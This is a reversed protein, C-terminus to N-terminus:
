PQKSPSAPAARRSKTDDRQPAERVLEPVYLMRSCHPCMHVAVSRRVESEVMTPLRVHCGSCVGREMAVFAPARGVELLLRYRDLLRRPVQRAAAERSQGRAEESHDANHDAGALKLLARIENATAEIKV